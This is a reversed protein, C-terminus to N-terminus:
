DGGLSDYEEEVAGIKFDDENEELECINEDENEEEEDEEVEPECINEEEDEQDEM